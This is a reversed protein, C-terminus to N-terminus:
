TTCTLSTTTVNSNRAHLTCYELATINHTEKVSTRCRYRAAFLQREYDGERMQARSFLEAVDLPNITFRDVHAPAHVLAATLNAFFRRPPHLTISFPTYPMRYVRCTTRWRESRASAAEESISKVGANENQSINVRSILNERRGGPGERYGDRATRRFECDSKLGLMFGALVNTSCTIKREKGRGRAHKVGDKDKEREASEGCSRRARRGRM